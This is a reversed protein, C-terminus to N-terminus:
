ASSTASWAPASPTTNRCTIPAGAPAAPPMAAPFAPPTSGSCSTTAPSRRTSRGTNAVASRSAPARRCIVQRFVDNQAREDIERVAFEPYEQPVVIGAKLRKDKAVWDHLQWDNAAHALAAGFEVNREDMGGRSLVVLMGTQCGNLDLHQRQMLELDCGPPGGNGPYSDARMGAAMMRPFPLQGILGQCLHAGFTDAHERWRASLYPHMDRPTRPVPHIDCDVFGLKQAAKVEREPVPKNM